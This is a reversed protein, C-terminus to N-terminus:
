KWEKEEEKINKFFKGIKKIKKNLYSEELQNLKLGNLKIRQHM